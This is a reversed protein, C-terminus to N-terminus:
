FLSTMKILLATGGHNDGPRDSRVATQFGPLRIDADLDREGLWTETMALIDYGESEVELEALKGRISQGNIHKISIQKPDPHPFEYDSEEVTTAPNM